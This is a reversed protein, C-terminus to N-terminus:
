DASRTHIYKMLDQVTDAFAILANRQSNDDLELFGTMVYKYQEKVVSMREFLDIDYAVGKVQKELMQQMENEVVQYFAILDQLSRHAISEHKESSGARTFVSKNEKRPSIIDVNAM